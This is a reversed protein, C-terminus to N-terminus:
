GRRHREYLKAPPSEGRLEGVLAAIRAMITATADELVDATPETRRYRALDVSSGATVRVTRRPWFRPKGKYPWIQQAGWSAAPVVPAGTELALRAAGTKGTMPWLEPDRTVTAEPYVVVCAGARVVRIAASLAERARLSERYVPIQGISRLIPGVVPVRFVSEKGLFCPYRGARQIFLAVAIPDLVSLHNCAIM